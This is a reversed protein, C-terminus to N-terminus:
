PRQRTKPKGAKLERALEQLGHRKTLYHGRQRNAGLFERAAEASNGKARRLAKEWLEARIGEAQDEHGATAKTLPSDDRDKTPDHGKSKGTSTM